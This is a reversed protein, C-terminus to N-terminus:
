SDTYRLRSYMNYATVNTSGIFVILLLANTRITGVGGGVGSYHTTINKLDKYITLTRSDRGNNCLDFTYSKHILYRDKNSNTVPSLPNTEDEFFSAGTALASNPQKDLVILCRVIASADLANIQFCIRMFISQMKAEDGIREEDSTGEAIGNLLFLEPGSATNLASSFTQDVRKKEKSARCVARAVRIMAVDHIRQARNRTVKVLPRYRRTPRFKSKQYYPNM